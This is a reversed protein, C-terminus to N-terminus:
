YEGRLVKCIALKANRPYWGFLAIIRSCALRAEIAHLLELIECRGRELRGVALLDAPHCGLLQYIADASWLLPSTGKKQANKNGGHAGGFPILSYQPSRSCSIMGTEDIVSGVQSNSTLLNHHPRRTKYGQGTM